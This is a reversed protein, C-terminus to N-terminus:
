IKRDPGNDPSEVSRIRSVRERLAARIQATEDDEVGAKCELQQYTLLVRVLCGGQDTRPGSYIHLGSSGVKDEDLYCVGKM